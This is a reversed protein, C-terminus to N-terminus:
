NGSSEAREAAEADSARFVMTIVEATKAMNDDGENQHTVL